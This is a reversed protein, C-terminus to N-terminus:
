VLGIWIETLIPVRGPGGTSSWDSLYKLRLPSKVNLDYCHWIQVPYPDEEQTESWATKEIVWSTSPALLRATIQKWPALLGLLAWSGECSMTGPAVAQRKKQLSYRLVSKKTGLGELKVSPDPGQVQYDQCACTKGRGRNRRGRAQGACDAQHGGHVPSSHSSLQTTVQQNCSLPPPSSQTRHCCGSERHRAM